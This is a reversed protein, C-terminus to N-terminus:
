LIQPNTSVANNMLARANQMAAETVQSGSIMAAIERCRGADDLSAVHTVTRDAEDQKYVKIHSDGQAAVQPLHTIALVQINRSMQRMMRGMREAIEGSVGTDIEDLVLTPMQVRDAIVGKISLMLRSMEGGSAVDGVPRMEGNRNFSCLFEVHDGGTSSLRAPTLSVEFRLNPLGLERATETIRDAFQLAGEKRLATLAAAQEKLGAAQQRAEREMVPLDPDEGSIEAMQERLGSYLDVLEDADEVRFRKVAEYYAQMRASLKELTAPDTDVSSNIDEITEAIDRLESYMVEMRENLDAERANDGFMSFDLKEMSARAESLGNLLGTESDGLMASLSSLREKIEDADSLVEYRREIEKLEGKKPKLKNLQEFRFRIFAENRRSEEMRRKKADIAHRLEVFRRFSERYARLAGEDGSMTDIVSLQHVLDALRANANQSHIDMLRPGIESLTALTVPTDNIYIRSRGSASIERRIVVENDIDQDESELWDIGKEEFLSRLTSDVNEFEAIVTAKKGSSVVRSDARNGLILALAGLMISKGSGTEGTIVTLGPAFDLEVREILAYNSITLRRLM